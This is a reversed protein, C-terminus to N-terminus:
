QVRRGRWVDVLRDRTRTGLVVSSATGRLLRPVYGDVTDLPVLLLLPVSRIRRRLRLLHRSRLRRRHLLTPLLPSSPRIRRRHGRIALLGAVPPENAGLAGLREVILVHQLVVNAHVGALFRVRARHALLLEGPRVMEVRVFTQVGALFRVKAHAAILNEHLHGVQAPM